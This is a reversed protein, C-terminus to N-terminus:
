RQVHLARPRPSPALHDFTGTLDLNALRPGNFDIRGGAAWPRIFGRRGALLSLHVRGDFGYTGNLALSVAGLNLMGQQLEVQRNAVTLRATGSEIASSAGSAEFSEVGAQKAVEGLLDFRGLAIRRLQLTAAGSLNAAIESRSLGRSQFRGHASYLGRAQQLNAPLVSALAGVRADQLSLDAKLLAPHKELDISAEGSGRGGGARFAASKIQILRDQVLVAASFHHLTLARYTVAAASFRGRANLRDFLTTAAQRREIFSSIGPLHQLLPAPQREGLVDFWASGQGIDLHDATLNFRWPQERRGEHEIRGSFVSTGLVAVIPSVTIRSGEVRLRARPVNVPETLGPLLLRGRELSARASVFPRSSPWADGSLHLSLSAVGRGDLNRTDRVGIGQAFRILEHLPVATAKLTLGYTLSGPHRSKEEVPPHLELLGEAVVEVHPALQVRVPALSARHGMIRLAIGSVPFTGLPTALNVEHASVFGGYRADRWAGQVTLMGDIRGSVDTRTERGSLHRYLAELDHLQSREIGLVLDLHNEAPIRSVTGALHIQSGGFALDLSAIRLRGADRNFDGRFHFVCPMPSTPPLQEWRHLQSLRAEGEFQPDRLSGTLHIQSDLIGYVGPNSGNVLPIWDYLLTGNARLEADLKGGSNAGPTWNGALSVTGPGPYSLDTRVPSGSLHFRIRNPELDIHVSGAVNTIAFPKKDEGIKFNLRANKVLVDLGLPKEGSGGTASGATGGAAKGGSRVMMGEINWQGKKDRVLNLSVDELTLSSISLRTHWLSRWRLNCDLSAARGFPESGFDPLEGVVVDQVTFGPHPLLHLSIGGFTVPRGLARELAARLRLRYGEAGFFHPALWGAAALLGVAILLNRAYRRGRHNM